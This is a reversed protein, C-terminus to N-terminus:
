KSVKLKPNCDIKLGEPGDIIACDTHEPTMTRCEITGDPQECCYMEAELAYDQDEDIEAVASKKITTANLVTNHRRNSNIKNAIPFSSSRAQVSLTFM